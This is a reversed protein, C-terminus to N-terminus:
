RAEPVVLQTIVPLPQPAFPEGWLVQAESMRDVRFMRPAGRELDHALVYWIPPNVLLAHPEARRRSAKQERDVYYFVLARAGTFAQELAQVTERRGPTYTAMMSMTAPRGVVVRRLFRRLERVRQEPLAALLKDVGLAARAGFPLPSGRQALSLTLYIGVIEEVDLEVRRPVRSADVRVGGGRGPESEIPVGRARLAALDRRLTRQSIELRAALEPVTLNTHRVLLGLLQDQRDRATM